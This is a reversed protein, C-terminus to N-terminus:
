LYRWFTGDYFGKDLHTDKNVTGFIKRAFCVGRFWSGSM